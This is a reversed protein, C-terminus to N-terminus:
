ETNETREGQDERRLGDSDEDGGLDKLREEEIVRNIEEKSPRYDRERLEEKRQRYLRNDRLEKAIPNRRKDKLKRERRLKHKYKYDM